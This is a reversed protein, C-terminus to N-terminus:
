EALATQENEYWEFVWDFILDSEFDLDIPNKPAM